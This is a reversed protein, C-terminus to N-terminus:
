NLVPKIVELDPFATRYSVSHSHLFPNTFSLKILDPTFPRPLSLHHFRLHHSHHPSIRVSLHVLLLTSLILNFSHLLSSVGCTLHHM